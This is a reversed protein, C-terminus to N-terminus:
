NEVLLLLWHKVTLIVVDRAMGSYQVICNSCLLFIAEGKLVTYVNM